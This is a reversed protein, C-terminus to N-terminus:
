HNLEVKLQKYNKYGYNEGSKKLGKKYITKTESWVKDVKSRKVKRSDVACCGSTPESYRQEV